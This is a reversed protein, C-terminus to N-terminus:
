SVIRGIPDCQQWYSKSCHFFRSANFKSRHEDQVDNLVSLRMTSPVADSIGFPIKARARHAATFV